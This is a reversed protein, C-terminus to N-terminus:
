SPSLAFLDLQSVHLKDREKWAQYSYLFCNCNKELVKNIGDAIRYMWFKVEPKLGDAIAIINDVLENQNKNAKDSMLAVFALSISVIMNLNKISQMSRVRFDEFDYEDKKLRFYEEVKWRKAYTFVIKALDDQSKIELNTLLLFPDRNKDHAMIDNEDAKLGYCVVLNLEIGDVLVKAHSASITMKKGKITLTIQKKVKKKKIVNTIKVEEGKYTVVRNKKARIIFKTETELHTRFIEIDDYGRDEVYIGLNGYEAVNTKIVDIITDKKVGTLKEQKSDRNSYVVSQVSVPHSNYNVMVLEECAYGKVIPSGKVSADRVFGIDEMSKSYQKNFDTTDMIWLTDKNVFPKIYSAYNDKLTQDDSFNDLNRALREIVKKKSTKENLKGAIISLVPSKAALFGFSICCIAKISPMKLGKTFISLFKLFEVELKKSVKICNFM